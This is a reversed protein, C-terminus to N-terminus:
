INSIQPKPRAGFTIRKNRKKQNTPKDKKPKKIITLPDFGASEMLKNIRYKKKKINVVPNKVGKTKIIIEPLIKEKNNWTFTRELRKVRGLSSIQYEKNMGPIFCWKEVTKQMIRQKKRNESFIKKDWRSCFRM